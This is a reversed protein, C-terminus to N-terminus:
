PVTWTFHKSHLFHIDGGESSQINPKTKWWVRKSLLFTYGNQIRKRSWWNSANTTRVSFHKSQYYNEEFILLLEKM